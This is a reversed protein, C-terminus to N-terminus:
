RREDRRLPGTQTRVAAPAQPAPLRYLYHLDTAAVLPDKRYEEVARFVNADPAIRLIYAGKLDAVKILQTARYKANLRDLSPVGFRLKTPPKAVVAAVAREGEPTFAILLEGEIYGHTSQPAATLANGGVTVSRPGGTEITQTACAALAVCALTAVLPRAGTM